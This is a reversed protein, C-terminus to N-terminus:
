SLGYKHFALICSMKTCGKNDRSCDRNDERITEVTDLITEIIDVTEITELITRWGETRFSREATRTRMILNVRSGTPTRTTRATRGSGITTWPSTLSGSGCMAVLRFLLTRPPNCECLDVCKYM